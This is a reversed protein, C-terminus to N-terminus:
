PLTVARNQPLGDRPDDMALLPGSTSAVGSGFSARTRTPDMPSGTAGAYEVTGWPPEVGEYRNRELYSDSYQEFRNWESSQRMGRRVLDRRNEAVEREIQRRHLEWRQQLVKQHQTWFSM